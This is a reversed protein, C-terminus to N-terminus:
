KEFTSLVTQVRLAPYLYGRQHVYEGFELCQGRPQLKEWSSPIFLHSM